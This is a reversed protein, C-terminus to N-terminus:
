PQVSIPCFPATRDSAIVNYREGETGEPGAPFDTYELQQSLPSPGGGGADMLFSGVRGPFITLRWVQFEETRAPAYPQYSAIADILWMAGAQECLRKVGATYLLNRMWHVTLEDM